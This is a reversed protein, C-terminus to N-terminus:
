HDNQLIYEGHSRPANAPLRAESKRKSTESTHQHRLGQGQQMSFASPKSQPTPPSVEYELSIDNDYHSDDLFGSQDRSYEEDEEFTWFRSDMVEDDGDSM